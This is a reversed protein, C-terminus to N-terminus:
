YRGKKSKALALNNKALQFDPKLAVAKELAVIAKDWQRMTNYAAGINNYAEAYDPRLRLAKEAVAICERYNGQNFYALSLDLYGEPTLNAKDLVSTKKDRALYQWAVADSPDIKLIQLATVKALDNKRQSAYISLLLQRDYLYGPSLEISKLLLPIAEVQRGRENLWRAYFYYASCLRPDCAIGKKFNEEAEQQRNMVGNLIGLNTYLRAYYPIYLKAAEFYKQAIDYRGKNMQSLGYNMLGRGNRPSKITVDYWLSEGDRWVRNRHRVGLANALLVLLLVSLVFVRLAKNAELKKEYRRLFLGVAWCVAIVLGIFPFFMRHDNLVETLPAVTVPILSIFFWLIGFAIPRYKKARSFYYAAFLMAAIFFLGVLFRPDFVSNFASWDYDASLGVPLFFTKFYYLMVFPQTILYFSLPINTVENLYAALSVAVWLFLFVISIAPLSKLLVGWFSDEEFLQLYVFLLPAFMLGAPKALAALIFPFLYVGFRRLFPFCIYVVLAIVVLATSLLDSRASIYNITEANATHLGYWGVGFLALWKNWDHKFAKDFIAQFLFFMMFLQVLYWIFSSLHFYFPNYGGGLKYDIAASLTCLSRSISRTPLVTQTKPDTFFSLVRKIDLNRIYPNDVITHSDDFHFGNNWHNGYTLMLALLLSFVAFLFLIRNKM